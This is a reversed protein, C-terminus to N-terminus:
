PFHLPASITRVRPKTQKRPLLFFVTADRGKIQNYILTDPHNAIFAGHHRDLM